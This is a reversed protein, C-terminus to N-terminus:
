LRSQCRAALHLLVVAPEASPSAARVDLRAGYALVQGTKIRAPPGERQTVTLEPVHAFPPCFAVHGSGTRQGAALELRLWGSLVESGDAVVSRTFQQTVDAPPAPPLDPPSEEDCHDAVWIGDPARRRHRLLWGAWAEELLVPSWLALRGWASTGPLTLAAAFAILAGSTLWFCLHWAWAQRPCSPGAVMSATQSRESPLRPVWLVRCLAAVATAPVIASFLLRAEAPGALAGACRRWLVTAAALWLLGLLPAAAWALLEMPGILRQPFGTGHLVAIPSSSHM